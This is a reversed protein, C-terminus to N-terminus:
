PEWTREKTTGRTSWRVLRGKAEVGQTRVVFQLPTQSDDKALYVDVEMNPRKHNNLGHTPKRDFKTKVVWAPRDGAPTDVEEVGAIEATMRWLRRSAFVDQCVQMGPELVMTRAVYLLTLLDTLDHEGDYERRLERGKLLVDAGVSRHDDAFRIREWREDDGYSSEVRVGLPALSGPDVMSMYRGEFAEFTSLFSSTRARGFLPLRVQGEVMRPKGVKLEMRGVLAGSVSLEYALEEGVVFPVTRRGFGGLGPCPDPYPDPLARRRRAAEAARRKVLQSAASLRPRPGRADITPRTQPALAPRARPPAAPAARPAPEPREAPKQPPAAGAPLALSTVLAGLVAPTARRPRREPPRAVAEPAGRAAGPGGRPGSHERKM